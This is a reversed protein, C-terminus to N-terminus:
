LSERNRMRCPVWIKATDGLSRKGEVYEILREGALEGMEEYPVEVASLKPTMYENSQETNDAAMLKVQEGIRLGLQYAARYIVRAGRSWNVLIAVPLAQDSLWRIAWDDSQSLEKEPVTHVAPELGNKIMWAIYAQKRQRDGWNPEYLMGSHLELYVPNFAGRKGMDDLAQIISQEYNMLVSPITEEMPYGEVSVYPIAHDHVAKAWSLDAYQTSDKSVIGDVRRQRFLEVMGQRQSFEQEAGYLLVHYGAHTCAKQFGLLMQLFMPNHLDGLAALCLSKGTRMGRAQADVTYNLEKIAKQVAKRTEDSIRIGQTGNLVASVLSRSVGARKAVDFSTAKKL